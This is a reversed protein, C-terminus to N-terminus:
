PIPGWWLARESAMEDLTILESPDDADIVLRSSRHNRVKDPLSDVAVESTRTLAVAREMCNELERVNGPWSYEELM